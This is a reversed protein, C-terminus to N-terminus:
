KKKIKLFKRKGVQIIVPQAQFDVNAEPDNCKKEDVKIGGQLILRRAESKSSALKATYLLDALKWSSKEFTLEEIDSPLKKEKFIKTFEAEAELAQANGHYEKVIERALRMKFDKPNKGSKMAQDIKQIENLPVDTLLEFYHLILKDPISMIKGYKENPPEDIGIYNGYSQSMKREGDTGILLSVAILDQLPLGRSKQLDRASLENFIQDTGIVTLDSKIVVSDYGQLIPYVVEHLRIERGLKKREKFMDRQRMQDDTFESMLKLLEEASMKDYWDGNYVIELNKIDLFRSIQNIYNKAELEVEQKTRMKRQELRDTPDGFRGTFTGILFIIKHGLEQFKKLKRYVATYGFHLDKTTPDIGHKIRLIKGSQLKEYISQKEIIVEVGRKLLEEIIKDM